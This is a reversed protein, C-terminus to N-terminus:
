IDPQTDIQLMPPPGSSAGPSPRRLTELQKPGHALRRALRVVGVKLGLLILELDCKRGGDSCGDGSKMGIRDEKHRLVQSGCGSPHCSAAAVDGAPRRTTRRLGARWCGRREGHGGRMHSLDDALQAERRRVVALMRRRPRARLLQSLARRAAPRDHVITADDDLAPGGAGKPETNAAHVVGM